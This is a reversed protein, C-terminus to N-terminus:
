ALQRIDAIYGAQTFVIKLQCLSSNDIVKKVRWKVEDNM